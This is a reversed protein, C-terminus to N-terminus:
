RGCIAYIEYRRKQEEKDKIRSASVTEEGSSNAEVEVERGLRRVLWSADDEEEEKDAESALLPM